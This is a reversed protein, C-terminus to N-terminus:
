EECKCPGVDASNCVIGLPDATTSTGFAIPVEVCIRQRVVFSCSNTPACKGNCPAIEPKRICHTAIPGIDVIPDIVVKASICVDEHVVNKCVGKATQCHGSTKATYAAEDAPNYANSTM